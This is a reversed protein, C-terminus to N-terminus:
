PNLNFPTPTADLPVHEYGVGVGVEGNWSKFWNVSKLSVVSWPAQHVGAGIHVNRFVSSDRAGVLIRFGSSGARLGTVTGHITDFTYIGGM